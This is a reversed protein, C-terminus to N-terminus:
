YHNNLSNFKIKLAKIKRNIFKKKLITKIELNSIINSDKSNKSKM